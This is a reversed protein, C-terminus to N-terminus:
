SMADALAGIMLPALVVALSTAGRGTREGAPGSRHSRPRCVAWRACVSLSRAAPTSWCNERGARGQPRLHSYGLWQDWARDQVGAVASARMTSASAANLM